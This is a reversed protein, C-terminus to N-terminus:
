NRGRIPTSPGGAKWGWGGGGRGDGGRYYCDNCSDPGSRNGSGGYFRSGDNGGGSRNNGHRNDHRYGGDGRSGGGYGGGYGSESHSRPLDNRRVEPWKRSRETMKNPKGSRSPARGSHGGRGGGGGGDHESWNSASWSSKRNTTQPSSPSDRKNAVKEMLNLATKAYVHKTPHVPDLAWGGSIVQEAKELSYSNGCILEMSVIVMTPHFTKRLHYWLKTLDRLITQLFDQDSFNSVHGAADCCPTRVYRPWPSLIFVPNSGFTDKLRKLQELAHSLAKDPAVVLAGTV